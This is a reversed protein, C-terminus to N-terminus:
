KEILGKLAMRLENCVRIAYADVSFGAGRKMPKFNPHYSGDSRRTVTIYDGDFVRPNRNQPAQPLTEVFTFHADSCLFEDVEADSDRRLVGQYDKGTQMRRDSHLITKLNVDLETNPNWGQMDATNSQINTAEMTKKNKSSTFMQLTELGIALHKGLSAPAV